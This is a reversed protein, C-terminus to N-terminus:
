EDPDTPAGSDTAAGKLDLVVEAIKGGYAFPMRDAYDELIPTGRDEGVDFTEDVSYIFPVTAAIKTEAVKAGDVSLRYNGGKGFEGKQGDYAFDLTVSHDGPALRDAGEIRIGDKPQQTNRYAWVPKGDLVLLGWGAFRGGQTIIVGDAGDAPVNIKATISYSTNKLSPATGEPIRVTGQHYVFESRGRTLSPRQFIAEVTAQPSFNLPLANNRGAEAWWLDQMERLKEPMSASLDKGQSFDKSLDYLEWHFSEQTIGKPEPEWAFVLPTTSAMWGDHYIGRNGFMEFMQTTRPSPAKADAFAYAMSKGDIPLQKVGNIMDPAQLGVAELITPMIDTVYHFQPRLGGADKIREPWSMVMGNRVGGFHSAYRKTWQFPTNFAWSWAVPMHNYHLPGGLQDKISYLYDFSEKAGNGVAAVENATGQLTGEASGGNDGEIFIILTNDLEGAQRVADIVRGINYDDYALFAAYVEAMHAFLEKHRADLSDWAPLNAPRPTLLTYAPIVGLQKQREFTAERQKDWGQDFQGKFKAIWDKPVHHPAHTAGPVYYAFFPKDPALSRQEQIWHIAQDALDSDLNYNERAAGTLKEKPEIPTTNEFLTPDWQNVDGGIFGYFYDFGLGTPWLDFPGVASSQWAPVNHNKGFWATSYGNGRLIEAITGASKPMLSDYGPYGLSREMIIGTHVNHQDRGTLLAARTPSCLATTNFQNFTVGSAALGDLTPTPIPGGFTTSAGFGVDDTLILLINPAGKPASIPQPFDSKSDATTRGITGKFLPDPAPLSAPSGDARAAPPLLFMSAIALLCTLKM